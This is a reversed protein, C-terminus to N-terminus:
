NNTKTLLNLVSPKQWTIHKWDLISFFFMLLQSFDSSSPHDLTTRPFFKNINISSSLFSNLFNRNPHGLLINWYGIFQSNYFLLFDCFLLLVIWFKSLFMRLFHKCKYEFNDFYFTKSLFFNSYSIKPFAKINKLCYLPVFIVSSNTWAICM